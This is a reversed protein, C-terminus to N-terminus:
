VGMLPLLDSHNLIQKYKSGHFHFFLFPFLHLFSAKSFFRMFRVNFLDLQITVLAVRGFLKQPIRLLKNVFSRLKILLKRLNAVPRNTNMIYEFPNEYNDHGSSEVLSHPMYVSTLSLLLLVIVCFLKNKHINGFHLSNM